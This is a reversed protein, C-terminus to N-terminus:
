IGTVVQLWDCKDKIGGRFHKKKIFSKGFIYIYTDYWLPVAVLHCFTKNNNYPSGQSRKKRAIVREYECQHYDNEPAECYKWIKWNWHFAICTFFSVSCPMITQESLFITWLVICFYGKVCALRPYITLDIKYDCGVSFLKKFFFNKTPDSIYQNQAM